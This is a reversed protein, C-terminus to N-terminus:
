FVKMISILFASSPQARLSIIICPLVFRIKWALSIGMSALSYESLLVTLCCGKTNATKTVNQEWFFEPQGLCHKASPEIFMRVTGGAIYQRKQCLYNIALRKLYFCRSLAMLTFTFTPPCLGNLDLTEDCRVHQYTQWGACNWEFHSRHYQWTWHGKLFFGVSGNWLPTM